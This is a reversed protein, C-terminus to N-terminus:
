GPRDESHPEAGPRLVRIARVIYPVGSWATVAVTAWVMAIIAYTALDGPRRASEGAGGPLNMLVLVSPVCISQLIMKWKGSWEAAFSVGRSECEARISTVLLERALMLAVMWAYVGTVSGSVNEPLPPKNPLHIIAEGTHTFGPGALFVFAGLVLLKDAFPDMIRGFVTVVNWRRALYGDLADTLAAVVFVAAAALLWWDPGEGHALPSTRYKWPTLIAFFAIALLVRAGTLLNPFARELPTVRARASAIPSPHAASQAM